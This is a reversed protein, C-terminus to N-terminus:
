LNEFLIENKRLFDMVYSDWILKLTQDPVFTQFSLGTTCYLENNKFQINIFLGGILEPSVPCHHEQLLSFIQKFPLQFIFKFQLPTRKGRIISFCYPRIDKWSAYHCHAEELSKQLDNDFFDKHYRGDISFTSYTTITSEIMEFSDFVEKLLLKNMFEKIDNIKLALM